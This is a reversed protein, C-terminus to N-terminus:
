LQAGKKGWALAARYDGRVAADEELIRCILKKILRIM